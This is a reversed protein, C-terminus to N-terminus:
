QNPRTTTTTTSNPAQVLPQQTITIGLRGAGARFVDGVSAIGLQLMTSICVVYLLLRVNSRVVEMDKRIAAGQLQCIEEHKSQGLMLKLYELEMKHMRDELGDIQAQEHDQAGAM